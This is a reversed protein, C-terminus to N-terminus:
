GALRDYVEQTIIKDAVFQKLLNVRIVDEVGRILWDAPVYCVPRPIRIQAIDQELHVHQAASLTSIGGRVAGWIDPPPLYCVIRVKDWIVGAIWPSVQTVLEVEQGDLQKLVEVGGVLMPDLEHMQREYQIFFRGEHSFVKGKMPENGETM